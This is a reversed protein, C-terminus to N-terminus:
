CDKVFCLMTHRTQTHTHTHMHTVPNKAVFALCQSAAAEVALPKGSPFNSFCVRRRISLIVCVCVSVCVFGNGCWRSYRSYRSYRSGRVAFNNDNNGSYSLFGINQKYFLGFDFHTLRPFLLLICVTLNFTFFATILSNTGQMKLVLVTPV